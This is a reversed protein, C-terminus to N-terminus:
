APDAGRKRRKPEEFPKGELLALFQDVSQTAELMIHLDTQDDQGISTDRLQHHEETEKIMKADYVIKEDNISIEWSRAFGDKMLLTQMRNWIEDHLEPVNPGQVNLKLHHGETTIMPLVGAQAMMMSLEM